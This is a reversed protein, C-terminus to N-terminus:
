GMEPVRSTAVDLDHRVKEAVQRQLDLLGETDLHLPAADFQNLAIEPPLMLM